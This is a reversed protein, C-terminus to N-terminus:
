SVPMDFISEDFGTIDTLLSITRLTYYPTDSSPLYSSAAVILGCDPLIDFIERTGSATDTFEARICSTDQTASLSLTYKGDEADSLMRMMRDFSPFGIESETTFVSDATRSFTRTHGQQTLAVTEANLTVSTELQGRFLVEAHERDGSVIRFIQRTVTEGSANTRGVTCTHYYAEAPTTSQLIARLTEDDAQMYLIDSETPQQTGSLSSLFADGFSDTEDNDAEATGIIREIWDPLDIMGNLNLVILLLLFALLMVVSLIVTGPVIPLVTIDTRKENSKSQKM